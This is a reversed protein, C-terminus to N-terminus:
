EDDEEWYARNRADLLEYPFSRQILCLEEESLYNKLRKFIPVLQNVIKPNIDNIKITM